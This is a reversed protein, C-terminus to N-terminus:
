LKPIEKLGWERIQAEPPRGYSEQLSKIDWGGLFAVIAYNWNTLRLMHQAFMHRWFHNPMVDGYKELVWSCFEKIVNNNIKAMEQETMKFIRGNKRTGIFSKIESLLELDLYKIWLKGVITKDLPNVKAMSRRCKDYVKIEAHTPYEILDELLANLTANIRTATKFMFRNIVYAEYNQNQVWKLMQNIIEKEVFLDAYKGFGKSKAGSIKKGALIGKSLLFDRLTIRYSQTEFGRDKLIRIFDRADDLTLRDPHKYAWLEEKHLNIDFARGQCVRKLTGIKERIKDPSLDRDKQELIWNKVSELEEFTGNQFITEAVVEKPKEEEIIEKRLHEEIEPHRKFWMTISEPTVAENRKALIIERLKSPSLTKHERAFLPLDRQPKYKVTKKVESEM